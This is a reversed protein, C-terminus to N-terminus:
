ARIRVLEPRAERVEYIGPARPQPGGEVRSGLRFADMELFPDVDTQGARRVLRRGLDPPQRSEARVGDPHRGDELADRGAPDTEPHAAGGGHRVGTGPVRALRERM